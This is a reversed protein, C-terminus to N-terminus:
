KESNMKSGEKETLTGRRRTEGSAQTDRREAPALLSPLRSPSPSALALRFSALPGHLANNAGTSM